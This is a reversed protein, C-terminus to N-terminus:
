YGVGLNAEAVSNHETEVDDLFGTPEPTNERDETREPTMPEADHADETTTITTRLGLDVRVSARVFIDIEKAIKRAEHFLNRAMEDNGAALLARGERIVQEAIQIRAEAMQLVQEGARASKMSALTARSAALKKEADELYEKTEEKKGTDTTKEVAASTNAASNFEAITVSQSTKKISSVLAVVDPVAAGEQGGATLAALVEGHANLTSELYGHAALESDKPTSINQIEGHASATHAAIYGELLAGTESTLKNRVVLDEAEELRREVRRTELAMRQEPTRALRMVINKEVAIKLPYFVDGPLSSEAAFVATSSGLMFIVLTMSVSAFIRHRVIFFSFDFRRADDASRRLPKLAMYARITGRMQEREAGTMRIGRFTDLQEMPSEM